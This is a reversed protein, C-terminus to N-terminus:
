IFRNQFLIYFCEGKEQLYKNLLSNYRQLGHMFLGISVGPKISAFMKKRSLILLGGCTENKCYYTSTLLLWDSNIM